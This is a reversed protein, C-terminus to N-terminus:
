YWGMCSGEKFNGAATFKIPIIEQGSINIFGWNDNLKVRILGESVTDVSQYIPPIIEKGTKDIFGWKDNLQIRTMNGKFYDVGQYKVPIVEKGEKDVFGYKKDLVVPALGEKFDLVRDYKAKVVIQGASNKFGYKGSTDKFSKLVPQQASLFLSSLFALHTFLLDFRRHIQGPQLTPESKMESYRKLSHIAYHHIKLLYIFKFIM